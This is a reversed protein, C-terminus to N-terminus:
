FPLGLRLYVIGREGYAYLLSATYGRARVFAGGGLATHWGGPSAGDFWVRGADALGLVGVPGMVPVRVEASGYASADGAYRDYAYGRLSPSGGLFAAYQVPFDGFVAQGGARVALVAGGMPLYATGVAGTRAFPRLEEGPDLEGPSSWPVGEAEASLTWGRRPYAAEDRRDWRVGARAGGVVVTGTAGFAPVEFAPTGEEPEPDIYRLIGALHVTFGRGRDVVVGPELSLENEWLIPRRADDPRETDNGWGTFYTAELQSARAFIYGYSASGTWRRQYRAEAGWRNYLPAYLARAYAHTAWPERRFGYRTAAPGVGIVLDAFPRVAVFPSFLTRATGWDRPPDVDFASEEEERDGLPGEYERTDVRTEPGRVFANRGEADYFVTRGSRGRDEFRDDGAGGIVRVLMGGAGRVEVRDDGGHLFIRIERTERQVFRRHVVLPGDEGGAHIRVDVLEGMREVVALDAGDTGHVEPERAMMGYGAAAAEPLRDRRARLTAALRAGEAAQYAAPMRRVADDILGDTLRARLAVAVSDWDARDLEGLLRRDLEAGQEVLGYIMGDYHPRFRVAKELVFRAADLLVGDYDVFVYDRDRPVPRWLRTGGVDFRAWDYQDGHRDWDGLFVDMLRVTLLERSALRNDAGGRLAEILEETDELDAAGAFGDDPREEMQGLMGAFRERFEGLRPDDPMVYLLPDVHLAGTADMLRGAVLAGAPNQSSVQDQVLWGVVPLSGSNGRGPDKDVSRFAYERGDAGRFRLSLTQNGGGTETPTLGGAFRELDLVAVTSPRTWLDRYSRGLFFRKIPGARYRAGATVQVSDEQGRATGPVAAYAVLGLIGLVFAQRM